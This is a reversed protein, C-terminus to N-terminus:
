WEKFHPGQKTDLQLAPGLDGGVDSRFTYRSADMRLWRGSEDECSEIMYLQDCAKRLGNGGFLQGEKNMQALLICWLKKKRAYDAISQAVRRLHREESEGRQQGGVLQWYDLIIGKVDFKLVAKGIANLVEDLTAGPADHYIINPNDKTTIARTALDDPRKLFVLSNVGMERAMNRQEIQLAGMEMAVYLHKCQLNYSISHALTTKGAKEAGCFGYTLGEYMGGGMAADINQFGTPYFVPPLKFGELIKARVQASTKFAELNEDDETVTRIYSLVEDSTKSEILFEADKLAGYVKRKRSLEKVMAAYGKLTETDRGIAANAVNRVYEAEDKRWAAFDIYSFEGNNRMFEKMKNFIDQHPDHYFDTAKLEIDVLALNNVLLGGLLWQEADLNEFIM